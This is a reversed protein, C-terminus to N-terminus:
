SAPRRKPLVRVWALISEMGNAGIAAAVLPALDILATYHKAHLKRHPGWPGRDGVIAYTCRGTRPACVFIESGCPWTRHAVVRDTPLM